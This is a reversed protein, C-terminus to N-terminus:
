KIRAPVHIPHNHGKRCLSLLWIPTQETHPRVLGLGWRRRLAMACYNYFIYIYNNHSNHSNNDTGKKTHLQQLLAAQTGTPTHDHCPATHTEVWRRVWLDVQPTDRRLAEDSVEGCGIQNQLDFTFLSILVGCSLLSTPTYVVSGGLIYFDPM